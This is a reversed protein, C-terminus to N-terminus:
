RCTNIWWTHHRDDTPPRYSARNQIKELANKVKLMSINEAAAWQRILASTSVLRKADAIENLFLRQAKREDTALDLDRAIAIALTMAEGDDLASAFDVYLAEERENAIQCVSLVGKDIFPKLDIPEKPNRPDSTRLYISESEVISCILSPKKVATLIAELEGTALLNILVCADIIQATTM